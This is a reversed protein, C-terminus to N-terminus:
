NSAKSPMNCSLPCNSPLHLRLPVQGVTKLLSSTLPRPLAQHEIEPRHRVVLLPPIPPRRRRLGLGKLSQGRLPTRTLNSRWWRERTLFHLPLHKPPPLLFRSQLLPPFLPPRLLPLPLPTFPLPARVGLCGKVVLLSVLWSPGNRRM